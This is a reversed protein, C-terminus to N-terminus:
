TREYRVPNIAAVTRTEIPAKISKKTPLIGARGLWVSGAFAQIVTTFLPSKVGIRHNAMNDSTTFATKKPPNKDTNKTTFRAFAILLISDPFAGAPMFCSVVTTYDWEKSLGTPGAPIGKLPSEGAIKM